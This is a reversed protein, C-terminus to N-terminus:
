NLKPQLVFIMRGWFKRREGLNVLKRFSSISPKIREAISSLVSCIPKIAITSAIGFVFQLVSFLTQVGLIRSVIERDKSSSDASLGFLALAGDIHIKQTEYTGFWREEVEPASLWPHVNEGSTPWKM